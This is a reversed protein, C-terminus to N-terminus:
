KAVATDGGTSPLLRPLTTSFFTELQQTSIPKYLVHAMGAASCRRYLSESTEATLAVVVPRPHITTSTEIAKGVAFGDVHPRLSVCPYSLRSVHTYVSGVVVNM